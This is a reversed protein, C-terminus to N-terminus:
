LDKPKLGAPHAGRPAPAFRTLKPRAPGGNTNALRTSTHARAARSLDQGDISGEVREGADRLRADGGFGELTTKGGAFGGRGSEGYTDGMNLWLTGDPRLVRRVERFVAVLEAVYEAPTEELGIQKDVRRAGCKRCWSRYTAHGYEIIKREITAANLGNDYHD